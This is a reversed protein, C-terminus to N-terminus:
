SGEEWVKLILFPFNDRIYEHTHVRMVRYLYKKNKISETEDVLWV